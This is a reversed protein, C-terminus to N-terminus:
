TLVHCSEVTLKFKLVFALLPILANLTFSFSITGGITSQSFANILKSELVTLLIVTGM